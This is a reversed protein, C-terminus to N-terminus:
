PLFGIFLRSYIKTNLLIEIYMKYVDKLKKFQAGM